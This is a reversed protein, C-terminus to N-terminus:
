VGLNFNALVLKYDFLIHASYSIFAIVLNTVCELGNNIMIVATILFYLTLSSHHLCLIVCRYTISSSVSTSSSFGRKRGGFPWYDM